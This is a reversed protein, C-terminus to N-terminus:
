AAMPTQASPQRPHDFLVALIHDLNFQEGRWGPGPTHEGAAANTVRTLANYLGYNESGTYVSRSLMPDPHILTGAPDHFLWVPVGPRSSLAQSITYKAEHILMHHYRCLLILNDLDTPGFDAWHQVHHAELHTTRHCGPHQCRGDRVALARRQPASVTRRKRGHNLIAGGTGRVMGVVVADCALRAATAASIGGVGAIQCAGTGPVATRDRDLDSSPRVPSAAATAAVGTTARPQSAGSEALTQADVHVVVLTRDAGSRDPAAGALYHHALELLADAPTCRDAPDNRSNLHDVAANLAAIFLAGEESPLDATVRVSGRSSTHWQARRNVEQDLRTDDSRRYARVVRDLQAATATLALDLLEQETIRDSIRTLSRIKSYSLRGLQFQERVLPLDRLARAVRVHERAAGPSLSCAWALWHACSKLGHGHWAGREDCDGILTLWSCTQRALVGAGACIAALLEEDNLGAEKLDTKTSM